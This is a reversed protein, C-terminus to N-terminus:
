LSIDPLKKRPRHSFFFGDPAALLKPSETEKGPCPLHPRQLAPNQYQRM